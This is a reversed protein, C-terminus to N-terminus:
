PARHLSTHIHRASSISLTNIQQTMLVFRLLLEFAHKCGSKEYIEPYFAVNYSPWYGRKLTETQDGYVVLGPIQEIVYLLGYPLQEGTKFLKFDIIM